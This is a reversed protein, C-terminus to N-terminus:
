ELKRPDKLIASRVFRFASSALRGRQDRIEKATRETEEEQYHEFCYSTTQGEFSGRHHRCLGKSCFPASCTYFCKPRWCLLTIWFAHELGQELALEYCLDCRGGIERESM